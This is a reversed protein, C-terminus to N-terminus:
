VFKLQWTDPTIGLERQKDEPAGSWGRHPPLILPAAVVPSAVLGEDWCDGSIGSDM